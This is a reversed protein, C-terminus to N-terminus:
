QFVQDLKALQKKVLFGYLAGLGIAPIGGILYFYALLSFWLTLVDFPPLKDGFLRLVVMLYVGATVAITISGFALAIGILVNWGSRNGKRCLFMGAKKGFYASGIFLAFLGPTITPNIFWTVPNDDFRVGFSVLLLFAAVVGLFACLLGTRRGIRGCGHASHDAIPLYM